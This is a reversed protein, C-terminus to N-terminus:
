RAFIKNINNHFHILRVEQLHGKSLQFMDSYCLTLLTISIICTHILRNKRSIFVFHTCFTSSAFTLTTLLTYIICRCMDKPLPMYIYIYMYIHRDWYGRPRLRLDATARKSLDHTRIGGPAHIDTQQESNHTTLYLDRRRASWEDLPARGVTTRRQTHDLFRMFSSAMARMPGCRWLPPPPLPVCVCVYIYIYMCWHCIYIYIVTWCLTSLPIYM